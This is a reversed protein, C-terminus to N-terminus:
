HQPQVDLFRAGAPATIAIRARRGKRAVVQVTITIGEVEVTRAEGQHYWDISQCTSAARLTHPDSPRPPSSPHTHM